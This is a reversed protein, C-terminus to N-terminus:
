HAWLGKTDIITTGALAAKEVSKFATHDVLLVAIDAEDMGTQLDVLSVDQITSPVSKIHPEVVNIRAQPLTKILKEAIRVSPSQRLDGIDAKFSLGFLTITPADYQKTSETVRNVVWNVKSDNVERATRILRTKDPAASVIFWPDVAICHGGVGPGPQLINVRPHHNALGILEWVDVSLSDCVISLENAFAINVDRFANETLKTLEATRDDTILLDGSCFSKYLDAAAQSAEPTMGGIVRDNEKLEALANGPLIREPCHAFMVLPENNEGVLDPRNSLVRVSLRETTRPPVTSELIVLSGKRLKPSISDVAADVFSSDFENRDKFPTPVAIVYAHAEPIDTSVEFRGSELAETLAEELGPESLDLKRTRIREILEKNIDVGTVKLGSQAMSVATPLGIYGLGIFVM